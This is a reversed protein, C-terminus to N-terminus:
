SYCPPIEREESPIVVYIKFRSRAKFLRPLEEGCKLFHMLDQM